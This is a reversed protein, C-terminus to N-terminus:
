SRSPPGRATMLGTARPLNHLWSGRYRSELSCRSFASVFTHAVTPNNFLFQTAAQLYKQHLIYSLVYFASELHRAATKTRRGVPAVRPRISEPNSKASITHLQGAVQPRSTASKSCCYSSRRMRLSRDYM